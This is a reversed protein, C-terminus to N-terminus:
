DLKHKIKKETKMNIILFFLIIITISSFIFLLYLLWVIFEEEFKDKNDYYIKISCLEFCYSTILFLAGFFVHCGCLSYINECFKGCCCSFECDWYDMCYNGGIIILTGYLGFFAILFRMYFYEEIPKPFIFNAALDFVMFSDTLVFSITFLLKINEYKEEFLKENIKDKPNARQLKTSM